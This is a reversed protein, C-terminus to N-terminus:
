KRYFLAAFVREPACVAMRPFLHPLWKAASSFASFVDGPRRLIHKGAGNRSDRGRRGKGGPRRGVCLDSIGHLEERLRYLRQAATKQTCRSHRSAHEQRTLEASSPFFKGEPTCVQGYRSYAKGVAGMEMVGGGTGGSCSAPRCIRRGWRRCRATGRLVMGNKQGARQGPSGERGGEGCSSMGCVFATGEWGGRTVRLRVCLAYASTRDPKAYAPRPCFVAVTQFAPM